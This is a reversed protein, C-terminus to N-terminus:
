RTFKRLLAVLSSVPDPSGTRGDFVIERTELRSGYFRENADQDPRIASGDLTVGAFLGRARSYSLIEARMQVDTSASADRGVPGAAASAGAGIKFDNRTLYELGRRNMVVLVLDLAQGGIQAGFSGGTITLFAPPSWGSRDTLRASLIGRGRQAGVIFGGRLTSPFIAIGEAKTLVSTPIAKDPAGMIEQLVTAAERIRDAEDSQARVAVAGALVVVVGLFRRRSRCNRMFFM